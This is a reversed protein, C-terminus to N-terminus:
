QRTAAPRRSRSWRAGVLCAVPRSDDQHLALIAAGALTEIRAPPDTGVDGAGSGALAAGREIHGRMCWFRWLAGPAAAAMSARGDDRRSQAGPSRRGCTTTSRRSGTWGADRSRRAGSQPEAEEALALFYEAHRRRLQTRRAARRWGSWPTSASRRWCGSARSATARGRGAQRLSKAVLSELGAWSTSTALGRDCVAEAADLTWGGVFVASAASCADSTARRAPRPELRHRRAADAPPGPPRARRGDPAAAAAGAARGDGAADAAPRPGGGARDGAAPRGTPRLDRRRRRRERRDARLRGPDRAGARRVARRGAVALAGRGDDGARRGAAGAAARRVRARRAAPAARSEDGAGRPRSLGGAPRGRRIRRAPDARLQRAAAPRVAGAPVGEPRGRDSPQRRGARRAGARHDVARARPGLDPGARGPVRRARLRGPPRRRGPPGPADEGDRWARHADRAARRGRVARAGRGTRARARAPRDPPDPPQPPSRGPLGAAPLGLGPGPRRGPLRAGAGDPGQASAARPRAPPRREAPRRPGPRDDGRLAPGPRRARDGRLRACRNVASGYYDGDRLEAEGTHVGIRVRIPRPTPWPEAAFRGSSRWRRGRRRRAGVRLRRLPQRGRRPVIHVGRHEAVAAEFLADHRALAARMAEPAEEWLATSGEVDTLLFTVTGSPLEAM